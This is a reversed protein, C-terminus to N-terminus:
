FYKAVQKRLPDLAKQPIILCLKINNSIGLFRTKIRAILTAKFEKVCFKCRQEGCKTPLFVCEIVLRKLAKSLPWSNIQRKAISSSNNPNLNSFSNNLSMKLVLSSINESLLHRYYLM